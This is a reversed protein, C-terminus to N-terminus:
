PGYVFHRHTKNQKKPPTFQTSHQPSTRNQANETHYRHKLGYFMRHVCIIATFIPNKKEHRLSKLMQYSAIAWNWHYCCLNIPLFHRFPETPALCNSQASLITYEGDTSCGWVITIQALACYHLSWVRLRIGQKILRRDLSIYWILNYKCPISLLFTLLSYNEVSTAFKWVVMFKTHIAFIQINKGLLFSWMGRLFHVDHVITAITIVQKWLPLLINIFSVVHTFSM